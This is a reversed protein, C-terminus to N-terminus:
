YKLRILGNPQVIKMQCSLRAKPNSENLTKMVVKEKETVDSLFEMGSEITVICTGCEGDRCGFPLASGSAEVIDQITKGPKVNIALFDNVIEVRTTM